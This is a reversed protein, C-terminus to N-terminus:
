KQEYEYKNPDHGMSQAKRRAAAKTPFKEAEAKREVFTAIGYLAEKFYSKGGCRMPSVIIWAM